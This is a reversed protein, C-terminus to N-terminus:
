NGFIPSCFPSCSMTEVIENFNVDVPNVIIKM